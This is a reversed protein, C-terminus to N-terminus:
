LCSLMRLAPALFIRFSILNMPANSSKFQVQSSAVVESCGKRTGLPEEDRVDWDSITDDLCPTGAVGAPRRALPVVGTTEGAYADEDTPLDQPHEVTIWWEQGRLTHLQWLLLM